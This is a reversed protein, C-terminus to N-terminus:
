FVTSKKDKFCDLKELKDNWEGSHGECQTDIDDQWVMKM